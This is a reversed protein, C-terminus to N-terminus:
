QGVIHGSSNIARPFTDLSEVDFSRITGNRERLFGHSVAMDDSYSGTVKGAPNIAMPYMRTLGQDIPTIAGNKTRLFAHWVWNADIYSGTIQGAPNIAFPFTYSGIEVPIFTQASGTCLFSAIALLTVCIRPVRVM